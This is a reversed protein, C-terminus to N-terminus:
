NVAVTAITAMLTTNAPVGNIVASGLGLEPPIAVEYVDGVKMDQILLHLGALKPFVQPFSNNISGSYGRGLTFLFPDHEVNIAIRTSYFASEFTLSVVDLVTFEPGDGETIRTFTPRKLLEVELLIDTQAPVIGEIGRGWALNFPISIERRGGGRMGLIGENLGEIAEQTGQTFTFVGTTRNTNFLLGGDSTDYVSQTNLSRVSYRVSVIDGPQVEVGDGVVMDVVSVEDAGGDNSDCGMWLLSTLFMLTCWVILRNMFISKIM